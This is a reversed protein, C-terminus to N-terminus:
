CEMKKIFRKPVEIIGLFNPILVKAYRRDSSGEGVYLAITGPEFRKQRTTSDAAWGQEVIIILEGQIM